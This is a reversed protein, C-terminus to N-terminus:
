KEACMWHSLFSCLVTLRDSGWVPLPKTMPICWIDLVCHSSYNGVLQVYTLRGDRFQQIADIADPQVPFAVGHLHSQRTTTGIDTHDQVYM